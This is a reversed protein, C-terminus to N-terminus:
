YATKSLLSEDGFLRRIASIEKIRNSEKRESIWNSVTSAMKRHMRREVKEESFKVTPEIESTTQTEANVVVEADKRKIVKILTKKV